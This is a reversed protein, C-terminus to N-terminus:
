EVDVDQWQNEERAGISKCRDVPWIRSEFADIFIINVGDGWTVAGNFPSRANWYWPLPEIGIEELSTIVDVNTIVIYTPARTVNNLHNSREPM